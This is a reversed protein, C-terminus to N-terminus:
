IIRIGKYLAKCRSYLICKHARVAEAGVVVGSTSGRTLTSSSSSSSSSSPVTLTVDSLEESNIFSMLSEDLDGQLIFFFLIYIYASLLM